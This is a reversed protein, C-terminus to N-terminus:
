SSSKGCNEDTLRTEQVKLSKGAQARYNRKAKGNSCNQNIIMTRIEQGAINKNLNGLKRIQNKDPSKESTVEPEPKALM